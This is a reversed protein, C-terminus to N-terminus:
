TEAAASPLVVVDDAGPAGEAIGESTAPVDQDDDQGLRQVADPAAAQAAKHCPVCRWSKSGIAITMEHGCLMFRVRVSTKKPEAIQEWETRIFPAWPSAAKIAARVAARQERAGANRARLVAKVEEPMSPTEAVFRRPVYVHGVVWSWLGRTAQLCEDSCFGDRGPEFKGRYKRAEPMDSGSCALCRDRGPIGQGANPTLGKGRYVYKPSRPDKTPDYDARTTDSLSEDYEWHNGRRKM